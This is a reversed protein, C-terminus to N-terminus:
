LELEQFWVGEKQGRPVAYMHHVFLCAPLVGVCMFYLLIFVLQLIYPSTYSVWYEQLCM